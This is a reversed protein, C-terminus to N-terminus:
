IYALNNNPRDKQNYDYFKGIISRERAIVNKPSNGYFSTFDHIFHAQDFYGSELAIQGLSLHPRESLLLRLGHQFRVLSSFLKPGIGLQNQFQRRLNRESIHFHAALEKVKHRGQHYFIHRVIGEIRPDTEKGALKKILFSEVIKIRDNWTNSHHLKNSLEEYDHSFLDKIDTNQNNIEHLPFDIMKQLGSSSFGIILMSVRSQSVYLRKKTYFGSVGLVPNSSIKEAEKKKTPESFFIGIRGYTNPFITSGNPYKDRMEVASLDYILYYRVFPSLLPAPRLFKMLM